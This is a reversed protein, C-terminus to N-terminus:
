ELRDECFKDLNLALDGTQVLRKSWAAANARVADLRAAFLPWAAACAPDQRNWADFLAAYAQADAEALAASYRQRFALAKDLHAAAEQPYAQWILPRAALQARVFSEEGRVFNMDCSWLLRDYQDPDLFHVAHLTLHRHEVRSGVPVSRALIKELQTLAYGEPVMCHLGRADDAWAAVLAPLAANEYCFLSVWPRGDDDADGGLARRFAQVALADAQMADRAAILGDEILVGGTAPTFGPFFFYKTLPLRPHPSPLTHHEDVWAEASLYELNIWVPAPHMAAMAEIYQDPLRVGFGEIVMQAPRVVAFQSTWHRVEIGDINQVASDVNIAPRLRKFSRLDDVWLRVDQGLGAALRRALRWCVGIDGFNDVVSCFIDWCRRRCAGSGADTPEAVPQRQKTM